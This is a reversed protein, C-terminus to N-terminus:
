FTLGGDDSILLTGCSVELCGRYGVVADDTGSRGVAFLGNPDPKYFLSDYRTGNERLAWLTLSPEPILIDTSNPLCLIDFHPGVTEGVHEWSLADSSRFLGPYAGVFVTNDDCITVSRVLRSTDFPAIAWTAGFDVSRLVGGDHTLAVALGTSSVAVARVDTTDVLDVTGTQ